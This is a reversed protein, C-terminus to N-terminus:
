EVSYIGSKNGKIEVKADIAILPAYLNSWLPFDKLSGGLTIRNRLPTSAAQSLSAALM